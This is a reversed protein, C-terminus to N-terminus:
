ERRLALAPQIWSARLAPVFAALLSVFVAFGFAVGFLWMPIQFLRGLEVPEGNTSLKELVEKAFFTISLEIVRSLLWACGVGLLAGIAGIMGSEALFLKLIDSNRAGLAKMVGIERTRELIAMSMTNVIQLLAVALAIAGIAGAVLNFGIFIYKIVALTDYIHMSSFGEEAIAQRVRDILETDADDVVVSAMMYERGAGEREAAGKKQRMLASVSVAQAHVREAHEPALVVAQSPLGQFIAPWGTRVNAQDRLVGAVRVEEEVFSPQWPAGDQQNEAKAMYRIRVTKGALSAAGAEGALEDALSHALMVDPPNGAVPKLALPAGATLEPQIQEPTTTTSIGTAICSMAGGEPTAIWVSFFINPYVEKVGPIGKLRELVEPTLPPGDPQEVGRRSRDVIPSVTITRLQETNSLLGRLRTEIGVGFSVMLVMTGIGISVGLITLFSRLKIRLLAACAYRIVDITSM